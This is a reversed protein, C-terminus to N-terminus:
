KAQAQRREIGAAMSEVTKRDEASVTGELYRGLADDVIRWAPLRMLTSLADLRAKTAPKMLITIKGYDTVREPTGDQATGAFPRGGKRKQAVRKNAM